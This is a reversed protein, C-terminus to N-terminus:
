VELLALRTELAENKASLEQVAKMLPAIFQDMKVIYAEHESEYGDKNKEIDKVINHEKDFGVEDLVALVEQAIIGTTVFSDKEDTKGVNDWDEYRDRNNYVFSKTSLKNIFELGLTLDEIEVKDRSDSSTNGVQVTTHSSTGIRITNNTASSGINGINIGSSYSQAGASNSHQVGVYQSGGIAIGGKATSNQVRAGRGIAVSGIMGGDCRSYEGIAVTGYTDSVSSRGIAIAGRSGSDASAGIAIGGEVDSGGDVKAFKGVAVTGSAGYAGSSSCKAGEGISTSGFTNANNQGANHGFSTDGTAIAKAFSGVATGKQAAVVASSGICLSFDGTVTPLVNGNYGTTTITFYDEGGAPVEVSTLGTVHGYTDLTVDQIFTSGSNNVSGQSSTDSHSVTVTGSTGGGSIGSGATVGTIDGVSTTYGAGNTLQNNNTIYNANTAGTYGLDGLTLNRTAVTANADTVHGLTDTTINFDLDSIVAAGSLAGTDIAADDGAHTPHTYQAAGAITGDSAITINSGATLAAVVNVTDTVDASAEIANLKSHDADTFVNSDTAAEVATRIEADTQDATASTEIGDLKTGDAAVDRGDVNGTVAINGTFSPSALPAAGSVESVAITGDALPNGDSIFDALSRAKTM